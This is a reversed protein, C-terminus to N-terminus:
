PLTIDMVPRLYFVSSIDTTVDSVNHNSGAAVGKLEEGDMCYYRKITNGTITIYDADSLFINVEEKTPIRWNGEIGDEENWTSLATNLTSLAEDQKNYYVNNFDRKETNSVVTINKGEAAVVYCGKYLTGVAPTETPEDNNDTTGTTNTEDFDFSVTIDEGWETGTLTGSLSVGRPQTYTGVISVKHNAPWAETAEYSYSKVGNATTFRVTITPKGKTPYAYQQAQTVQWTGETAETLAIKVAKTGTGYEGALTMTSYTPEVMLEVATVEEPVQKVTVEDIRLVRRELTMNLQRTEGDSLTVTATQTLLDDMVSNTKVDITSTTTAEEETPLTFRALDNGGVAYVEYSGAPLTLTTATAGESLAIMGVCRTGSMVYIRGESITPTSGEDGDTTGNGGNRTVINLTCTKAEDSIITDTVEKACGAALTAGLLIMITLSTSKM